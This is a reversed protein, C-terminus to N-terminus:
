GMRKVDRARGGNAIRRLTALDILEIKDEDMRSERILDADRLKRMARRLTEPKMGAYAAIHKRLLPLVLESAEGASAEPWRRLEFLVSVIRELPSKLALDNVHDRLRGVQDEMQHRYARVIDAHHRACLDFDDSGMTLVCCYGLAVLAGQPRRERRALDILDGSRFLEVLSRRGDDVSYELGCTGSVMLGFQIDVPDGLAYEVATADGILAEQSQPELESWFRTLEIWPAFRAATDMENM